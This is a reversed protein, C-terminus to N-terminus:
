RWTELIQLCAQNLERAREPTNAENYCRLEPANGSPRLHIIEGNDFRIRLGDTNDTQIAQGCLKGFLANIAKPSGALAAIHERAKETPFAKLRDSATYRQPLTELLARISNGQAGASVLISLIPLVADRTPLASLTRGNITIDSALLFGGNAEYGAVTNAGEELARNMGAIVYPSGIRTRIVQEFWGSAEM